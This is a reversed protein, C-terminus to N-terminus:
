IVKLEVIKTLVDCYSYSHRQTFDEQRVMITFISEYTDELIGESIYCKKRGRNARFEIKKGVIKKLEERISDLTTLDV